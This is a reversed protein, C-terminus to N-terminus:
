DFLTDEQQPAVKSGVHRRLIRQRERRARPSRKLAWLTDRARRGSEEINVIPAPYDRGIVVGYLLQELPGLTWPTHIFPEPVGRLEPLWRKIFLGQPDHEQSQKIPNYVRITNIGTTSAQMQLQPYHIGPEYDLFHRALHTAGVRWDQWLHHTLFSVLMARMRFNLYGTQILCRMTADVLPLGTEGYAWAEYKVPDFADRAGEFAPNLYRRELEPESELKQIFHSRWWLRSLFAEHARTPRRHATLKHHTHVVQRLSVSGWALHASLRSCSSRSEQPKSIYRQYGKVRSQYFSRCLQRAESTGGRQLEDSLSSTVNLHATAWTVLPQGHQQHAWQPDLEVWRARHLEPDAFPARMYALWQESWGSRTRAGRVVGQSPLEDWRVERTKCWRAVAKDRAYTLLNGTEQHSILRLAGLREHLAELLEVVERHFVYVGGGLRSLEAQLERLCDEQFRVHFSSSDPAQLVSPEFCFIILMPM